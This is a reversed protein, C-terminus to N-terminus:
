QLWSGCNGRAVAAPYDGNKNPIYKNAGYNLLLQVIDLNGKSAAIHLPTNGYGDQINIQQQLTGSLQADGLQADGIAGLVMDSTGGGAVADYIPGLSPQDYAGYSAQLRSGMVLGGALVAVCLVLRTFVNMFEGECM